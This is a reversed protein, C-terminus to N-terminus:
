DYLSEDYEIHEEMHKAAGNLSKWTGSKAKTLTIQLQDGAATWKVDTIEGFLASIV